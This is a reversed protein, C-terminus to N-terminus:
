WGGALHGSALERIKVYMNKAIAIDFHGKQEQKWSPESIFAFESFFFSPHIFAFESFFLLSTHSKLWLCRELCGHASRLPNLIVRQDGVGCQSRGM